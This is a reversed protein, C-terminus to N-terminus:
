HPASWWAGSPDDGTNNVIPNADAPKTWATLLPDGAADAPRALAYTTAGTENAGADGPWAANLGPYVLVPGVGDVRSSLLSSSPATTHM